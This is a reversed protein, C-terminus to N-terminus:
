FGRGEEGVFVWKSREDGFGVLLGVGCHGHHAHLGAYSDHGGLQAHHAEELGAAFYDRDGHHTEFFAVYDGLDFGLGGVSVVGNLHAVAADAVPFEGLGFHAMELLGASDWQAMELLKPELVNLAELGILLQDEVVQELLTVQDIHGSGCDSFPKLAPNLPVMEFPPQHSMPGLTM